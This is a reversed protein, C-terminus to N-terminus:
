ALSPHFVHGRVLLLSTEDFLENKKVAVRTSTGQVKYRTGKYQNGIAIFKFRM